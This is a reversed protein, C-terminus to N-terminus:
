AFALEKEQHDEYDSQHTM